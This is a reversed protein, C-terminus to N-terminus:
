IEEKYETPSVGVNKKFTRSFYNADSYGVEMCIEKMSKSSNRLLDKAKEIRVSTLYEIFTNGTRKKFLKSLYYPSIQLEKSVEDLIIDKSYNEEIYLQAKKVIDVTSEEKKTLINRCVESIKSEFWEYLQQYSQMEMITQLYESRMNFRYVMGGSEFGINEAKLVFELVKLKIDMVNQSHNEVMWDFFSKAYYISKSHNGIEINKFLLTETEIPYNEEYNCLIPLDNVHVVSDSSNYALSRMAENYSESLEYIGHIAGIGLRFKADFTQRLERVM